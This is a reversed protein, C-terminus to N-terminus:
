DLAVAGVAERMRRWHSGHWFVRACGPCRWFADFAARTRPLLQAEVEAKAVPVPVANCELCRSPGAERLPLSFRRAVDALQALPDDDRLCAGKVVERRMLLARDRTLVTRGEAAAIAVLEADDWANHWLTDFGAFRLWRALRGLHADAIFRWAADPAAPDLRRLAPLVAVRDGPRLRTELPAPQGNVLLLAVETHPVGLAEIAHKASEHPAVAHEFARGRRPPALFDGLEAYFRFEM